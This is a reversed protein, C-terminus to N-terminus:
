SAPPKVPCVMDAGGRLLAKVTSKHGAAAAVLLATNGSVDRTEPDAKADLLAAVAKHNGSAAASLLLRGNGDSSLGPLRPVIDGMTSM